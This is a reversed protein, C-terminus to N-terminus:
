FGWVNEMVCRPTRSIFCFKRSLKLCRSFTPSPDTICSKFIQIDLSNIKKATLDMLVPPPTRTTEMASVATPFGTVVFPDTEQKWTVHGGIQTPSIETQHNRGWFTDWSKVYFVCNVSASVRRFPSTSTKQILDPPRSGQCGQKGTFAAELWHFVYSWIQNWALPIRRRRRDSRFYLNIVNMQTTVIRKTPTSTSVRGGGSIVLREAAENSLLVNIQLWFCAPWVGGEMQLWLRCSSPGGPPPAKTSSSSLSTSNLSAEYRHTSSWLPPSPPWGPPGLPLQPPKKTGLQHITPNLRRHSTACPLFHASHKWDQRPQLDKDGRQATAMAVWVQNARTWASQLCIRSLCVGHLLNKPQNPDLVFRRERSGLSGKVKFPSVEDFLFMNLIFYLKKKIIFQLGSSAWCWKPSCHLNWSKQDDPNKQISKRQIM